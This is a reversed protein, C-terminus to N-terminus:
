GSPTKHSRPPDPFKHQGAFAGQRAPRYELGDDWVVPQQGVQGAGPHGTVQRDAGAQALRQGGPGPWSLVRRTLM